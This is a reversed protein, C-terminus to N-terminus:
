NKQYNVTSQKIKLRKKEIDENIDKIKNKEKNKLLTELEEIKKKLNNEHANNAESNAAVDQFDEEGESEGETNKSSTESENSKLKDALYVTDLGLSQTELASIVQDQSISQGSTDQLKVKGLVLNTLGDKITTTSGEATTIVLDFGSVKYSKINELIEITDNSPGINTSAM